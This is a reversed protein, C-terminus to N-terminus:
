PSTDTHADADGLRANMTPKELWQAIDVALEYNIREVTGCTTWDRFSKRQAIFNGIEKGDDVLSGVLTIWRFGTFVGGGVLRESSVNMILKKGDAQAIDEQTRYINTRGYRVLWYPLQATAVCSQWDSPNIANPHLTGIAEAIKIGPGPKELWSVLEDALTSGVDKAYRCRELAGAYLDYRFGYNGVAKGSADLLEGKIDLWQPGDKETSRDDIRAEITLTQGSSGEPRAGLIVRNATEKRLSDLMIKDWRCEPNIKQWGRAQPNAYPVTPAVHISPLNAAQLTSAFAFLFFPLFRLKKMSQFTQRCANVALM